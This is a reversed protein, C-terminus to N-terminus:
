AHYMKELLTAEIRAQLAKSVGNDTLTTTIMTKLDFTDYGAEPLGEGNDEDSEDAVLRKFSRSLCNFERDYTEGDLLLIRVNTDAFANEDKDLEVDVHKPTLTRYLLSGEPEEGHAYPQMSGVVKVDIGRLTMETAKHIHGTYVTGVNLAQLQDLPITNHDNEGHQTIDWHGFAVTIARADAGERKHGAALTVAEAASVFPQWGFLHMYGGNKLSLFRHDNVFQIRDDMRCLQELLEFSSSKTSDRSADHNGRLIYVHQADSIHRRLLCFTRLVAEPPVVFKDFLDGMIITLEAPTALQREFEAWVMAERDGIRHLPVNTRFVRGVHPDGILNVEAGLPMKFLPM